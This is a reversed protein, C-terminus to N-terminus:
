ESPPALVADFGNLDTNDFEFEMGNLAVPESM